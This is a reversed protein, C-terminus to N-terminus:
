PNVSTKKEEEKGTSDKLLKDFDSSKKDFPDILYQKSGGEEKPLHIQFMRFHELINGVNERKLKFENAIRESTWDKPNQQHDSIFQIAQRLTCKGRPVKQVDPEHYGLDYYAAPRRSM